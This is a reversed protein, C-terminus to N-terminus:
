ISFHPLKIATNATKPNKPKIIPTTSKIKLKIFLFLFVEDKTTMKHLKIIKQTPTNFIGALM